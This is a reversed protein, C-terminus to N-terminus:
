GLPLLMQFDFCIQPELFWLSILFPTAAEVKGRALDRCVGQFCTIGYLGAIIGGKHIPWGQM